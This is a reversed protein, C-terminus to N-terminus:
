LWSHGGVFYFLVLISVGIGIEQAEKDHRGHYFGLPCLKEPGQGAHVAMQGREKAEGWFDSEEVEGFTSM